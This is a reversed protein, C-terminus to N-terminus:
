ELKITVGNITITGAEGPETRVVMGPPTASCVYDNDIRRLTFIHSRPDDSEISASGVIISRLIPQQGPIHLDMVVMGGPGVNIETLDPLPRRDGLSYFRYEAPSVQAPPNAYCVYNGNIEFCRSLARDFNTILKDCAIGEGGWRLSQAIQTITITSTLTASSDQSSPLNQETSSLEDIFTRIAAKQEDPALQLAQEAFLRANEPQGVRHL